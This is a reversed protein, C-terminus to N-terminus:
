KSYGSRKKLKFKVKFLEIPRSWDIPYPNKVRNYRVLIGQTESHTTFGFIRYDEGNKLNTWIDLVQVGDNEKM